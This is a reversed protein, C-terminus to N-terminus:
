VAGGAFLRNEVAHWITEAVEAQPRTSDVVCCRQPERGAIDLFARRLGEHFALNQGEFRDAVADGARRAAARALGIESPLDLIFTLDPRFRGVVVRELAAILKPDLHGLAGQYARTSDIFRDCVVIRGEALAPVIKRDLHDIRAASFVLAEAAPGLPAIAGSLLAHRYAEALPTGGPERTAFTEIGSANLREVLRRVQTSKGAGEGGEFTIFRGTPKTHSETNSSM